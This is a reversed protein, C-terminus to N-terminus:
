LICSLTSFVQLGLYSALSKPHSVQTIFVIVTLTVCSFIYRVNDDDIGIDLIALMEPDFSLPLLSVDVLALSDALSRLIIPIDVPQGISSAVGM